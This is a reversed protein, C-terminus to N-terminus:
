TLINNIKEERFEELSVFFRKNWRYIDLLEGDKTGLKYEEDYEKIVYYVKGYYLFIHNDCICVVPKM